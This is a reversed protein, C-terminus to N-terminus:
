APDGTEWLGVADHLEMSIADADAIAASRLWFRRQLPKVLYLSKGVFLRFDPVLQFNGPLPVEIHEGLRRLAEGITRDNRERYRAGSSRQVLRLHLLALDDNRAELVVNIGADNDLWNAMSRVLTKAYTQRDNWNSPRWLDVSAGTHPQACPIVHKVTDEVLAIEEEGLGFYKYCHSDLEDFLGDDGPRLSFSKMASAMAENIISVLAVSAAKSRGDQQIDQLTPFPLRLLEAQQIEPRDSGFSATGHFAFWFMLKSNLLATLLKARNADRDPVSISLIIHEFTLPDELYSARLRHGTVSIGRPVLIRPGNFGREFGKRRVTGGNGDDFARLQRTDQAPARFADIPLYPATTVIKSHQSRYNDDGLRDENVPQFGNGVIWRNEVSEMRRRVTRYEGVLNGLKPLAALYGFLKSEPDNMWLRRKFISADDEAHRSVITRRDVSSLTIVRRIKLNLDAKPTWYDFRYVPADAGACGFIVLAAPRVAGEFLQFRMDSFNVIRHIRVDRILRNRASVANAAHNHLFGMAPLLFGVVGDKRLHRISKWVFAWADEKGPMPVQHEDCWSVSSREAGRRSSWPPNGIIIDVRLGDQSPGFFDQARLTRGWLGPLIRGQEILLRIEPPKVEQLLAVYLSFVAVRVAGANVDWGHLRSLVKLLSDWRITPSKHTQRWHECLLQFSRVLFVGSGCAPDLVVGKARTSEPLGDWVASIVTDALFMPTYYAGRNRREAKRAGLFHDYVASVLEIPIYRFNYGWFRLQGHGHGMEEQGSRFGALTQLHARVVRPRPGTPDFSCPAVFLDGNFEERLRGFLRYLANSNRSELLALFTDSSGHSASRFYERRVIERDELYAIFMTQILLAEAADTSLGDRCLAEHSATLNELLVQDIRESTRFYDAHHEWLRGSEAGYILNKVTLGDAVADLQQVLYRDDFEQDDIYPIRALSFARITDGSLVLLLTALGQNWLAGHLDVVRERDYDDLVVIVVTPVSQVCFVASAGLDALATRIANAHPSQGVAKPNEYLEPVDRMSLDLREKWVTSLPKAQAASISM